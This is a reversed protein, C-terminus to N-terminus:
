KIRRFTNGKYVIERLKFINQLWDKLDLNGYKRLSNTVFLEEDDPNDDENYLVMALIQIQLLKKCTYCFDKYFSKLYYKDIETKTIFDKEIVKENRIYLVKFKM